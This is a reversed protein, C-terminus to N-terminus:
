DFFEPIVNKRKNYRKIRHDSSILPCDMTMAAALIQKDHNDFNYKKEIDTILIFNELIEKDFPQIEMNEQSKIRYYIETKIKEAAEETVFWKKFIEIFVTAPFILKIEKVYFADDIIKLSAPSIKSPENFIDSFYSILACTDVVYKDYHM